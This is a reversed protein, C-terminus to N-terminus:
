RFRKRWFVVWEGKMVVYKVDSNNKKIFKFDFNKCIGFEFIYLWICVYKFFINLIILDKLVIINYYFVKTYVWYKVDFM